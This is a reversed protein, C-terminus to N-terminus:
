REWAKEHGYYIIPGVVFGFATLAVAQGLDGAVIFNATFDTTTALGRYTITKVLARDLKLRKSSAFAPKVGPRLRPLARTDVATRSPQRMNWFMEHAFYFLPGAILGYASLAVAPGLEGIVLINSTFDISTAILRFTLTKVIARKIEPKSIATNVTPPAQRIFTARSPPHRRWKPLLKPLIRPGLVAAAGILVGPVLAAEFLAAGALASLGVVTRKM